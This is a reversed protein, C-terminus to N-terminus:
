LWKKKRFYIVMVLLIITMLIFVLWFGAPSNSLPLSKPFNMGWISAILTLPLMIVSFTTLVKMVENIRTSLLSQNTDELALITEKDTELNNSVREYTGLVDSFHPLLIQGFFTLGEKLLSDLVEKQPEIIRWFNIIDIKVLSIELVMEKEQGSFIYKQINDIREDIKELKKFCNKWFASLIYYVLQGSGESMYTQQSQKHFRCGDFLTKLPPIPKYHSTIVAKKTVIISLERSSTKRTEVNYMPYYLVMFLYDKHREVRPRPTPNILEDLVM